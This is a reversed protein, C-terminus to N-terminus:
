RAPVLWYGLAGRPRHTEEVVASPPAGRAREREAGGTHSREPEERGEGVRARDPVDGRAFLARPDRKRWAADRPDGRESGSVVGLAHDLKM